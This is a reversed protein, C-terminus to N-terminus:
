GRLVLIRDLIVDALERKSMIPLEQIGDATILAAINTDTNFGAGPRTVDNAVILDLNKAKLKDSAHKKVHDTEAAFGVFIQGPKKAAGVTKAIDPNETLTITVPEGAKKKM